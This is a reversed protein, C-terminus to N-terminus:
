GTDVIPNATDATPVGALAENGFASITQLIAQLEDLANVNGNTNNENNNTM